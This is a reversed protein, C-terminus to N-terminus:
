STDFLKVCFSLEMPSVFTIMLLLFSTKEVKIDWYFSFAKLQSSLLIIRLLAKDIISWRNGQKHQSYGVFYIYIFVVTYRM